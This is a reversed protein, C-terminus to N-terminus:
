VEKLKEATKRLTNKINDWEQKVNTNEENHQLFWGNKKMYCRQAEM